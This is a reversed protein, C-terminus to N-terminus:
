KSEELFYSAVLCDELYRNKVIIYTKNINHGDRKLEFIRTAVQTIGLDNFANLCTLAKGEKLHTLIRNAQTEPKKKPKKEPNEEQKNFIAGFNSNFQSRDGIPRANSGKSM